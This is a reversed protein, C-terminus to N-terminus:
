MVWKRHDSKWCCNSLSEGPVSCLSSKGVTVWGEDSLGLKDFCGGSAAPLPCMLSVLIVWGERWPFLHSLTTVRPIWMKCTRVEFELMQNEDELGDTISSGLEKSWSQSGWSGCGVQELAFWARFLEPRRADQSPFEQSDGLCDSHACSLM